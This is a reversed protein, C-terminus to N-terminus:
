GRHRSREMGETAKRDNAVRIMNQVDKVGAVNEVCDEAARKMAREEVTGTLTVEGSRVTVEIDTADVRDDDTLAECVAERIREDSRQYSAPGQGRHGYLRGPDYDRDRHLSYGTHERHLVGGTGLNPRDGDYYGYGRPASYREPHYPGRGFRDDVGRERYRDEFSGPYSQGRDREWREWDRERRDEWYREEEDSM